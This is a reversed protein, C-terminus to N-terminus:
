VYQFRGTLMPNIALVQEDALGFLLFKGHRLVEGFRNGTLGAAVDVAPTRFIYPIYTEAKTIEVGVIRENLFARIAELDPIEPMPTNYPLERNTTPLKYDASPRYYETAHPGRSGLM